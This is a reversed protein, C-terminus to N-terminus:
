VLKSASSFVRVERLQLISDDISMDTKNVSIWSGYLPNHCKFDTTAGDPMSELQKYCVGNNGIDSGDQGVRVEFNRLRYGSINTISFIITIQSYPFYYLLLSIIYCQKIKRCNKQM